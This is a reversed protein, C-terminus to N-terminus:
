GSVNVNKHRISFVAKRRDELARHVSVKSFYVLDAGCSCLDNLISRKCGEKGERYQPWYSNSRITLYNIFNGLSHWIFLFVGDEFVNCVTMQPIVDGSLWAHM